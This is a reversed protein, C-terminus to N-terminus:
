NTEDDIIDKKLQDKGFSLYFFYISLIALFVSVVLSINKSLLLPQYYLFEYINLNLVRVSGASFSIGCILYLIKNNM